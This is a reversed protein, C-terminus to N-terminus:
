RIFGFRQWTAQAADSDLYAFFRKGEDKGSCVGAMYVIRKHSRAPFTGIIKVKGSKMADTRYVIGAPAEGMEVVMLASRVDKAPLLHKKLNDYRAFYELAEKAYKGAPVHAPDGMSLRGNGLITLFDLSSDITVTKLTSNGPTILVLENNAIEKELGEAILGLSDIFQMWRRSASLYIDPTGGQAIQRALTGSSAMNTKVRIGTNQEFSDAIETLVDLLSAAAFVMVTKENGTIPKGTVEPPITIGALILTTFGILTFLHKKIIFEKPYMYEESEMNPITEPITVNAKAEGPEPYM